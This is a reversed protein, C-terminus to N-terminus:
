QKIIKKTAVGTEQCHLGAHYVKGLNRCPSAAQAPCNFSNKNHIVLLISAKAQALEQSLLPILDLANGIAELGQLEEPALLHIQDNAIDIHGLHVSEGKEPLKVAVM